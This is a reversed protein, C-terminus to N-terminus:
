EQAGPAPGGTAEAPEETKEPMRIRSRLRQFNAAAPTGKGVLGICADLTGSEERYLDDMAAEVEVTLDRLNRKADEQRANLRAATEWKAALVAKRKDVDMGVATLAEREEELLELENKALGLRETQTASMTRM